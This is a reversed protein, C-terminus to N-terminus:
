IDKWTHNINWSSLHRKVKGSDMLIMNKGQTCVLTRKKKLYAIGSVMIRKKEVKQKLIASSVLSNGSKSYSVGDVM